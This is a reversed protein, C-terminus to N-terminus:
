RRLGHDGWLHYRQCRVRNETHPSPSPPCVCVRARRNSCFLVCMSAALCTCTAYRSALYIKGCSRNAAHLLLFPRLRCLPKTLSWRTCCSRATARFRKGPLSFGRKPLRSVSMRVTKDLWQSTRSALSRRARAGTNMKVAFNSETM